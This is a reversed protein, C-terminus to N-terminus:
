GRLLANLNRRPFRSAGPGAAGLVEEGITEGNPRRDLAFAGALRQFRM